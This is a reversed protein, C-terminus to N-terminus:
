CYVDLSLEFIYHLFDKPLRKALSPYLKPEADITSPIIYESLFDNILIEMGANAYKEIVLIVEKDNSIKNYDHGNLELIISYYSGWEVPTITKSFFRDDRKKFDSKKLNKYGICVCVFFLEHFDEIVNNNKLNNYIEKYKSETGVRIDGDMKM